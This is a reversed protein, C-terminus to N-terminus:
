RRGQEQCTCEVWQELVLLWKSSAAKLIIDDSAMQGKFGSYLGLLNEVVPASIYEDQLVYSLAGLYIRNSGLVVM